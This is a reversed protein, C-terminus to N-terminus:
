LTAVIEDWRERMGQRDLESRVADRDVNSLLLLSRLDAMRRVRGGSM